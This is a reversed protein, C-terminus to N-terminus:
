EVRRKVLPLVFSCALLWILLSFPRQILDYFLGNVLSSDFQYGGWYLILQPFSAINLLIIN